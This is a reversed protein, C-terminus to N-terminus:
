GAGRIPSDPPVVHDPVVCGCPHLQVRGGPLPTAMDPRQPIGCAPCATM